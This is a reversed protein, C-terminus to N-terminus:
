ISAVKKWLHSLLHLDVLLSYSHVFVLGIHMDLVGEWRNYVVERCLGTFSDMTDRHFLDHLGIAVNGM